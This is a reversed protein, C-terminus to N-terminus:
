SSPQVGYSPPPREESLPSSAATEMSTSISLSPSSPTSMALAMSTSRALSVAPSPPPPPPSLAAAAPCGPSVPSASEAAPSRSPAPADHRMCALFRIHDVIFAVLLSGVGCCRGRPGDSELDALLPESRTRWTLSGPECTRPGGSADCFLKACAPMSRGASGRAGTIEGRAAM